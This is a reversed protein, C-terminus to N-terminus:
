IDLERGSGSTNHGTSKEKGSRSYELKQLHSLSGLSHGQDM